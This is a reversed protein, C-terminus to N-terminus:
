IKRKRISEAKNLRATLEEQNSALLDVQDSVRRMEAVAQQKLFSEPGGAAGQGFAAFAAVAAAAFALEKMM